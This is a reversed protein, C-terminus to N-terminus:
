NSGAIELSGLWRLISCADCESILYRKNTFMSSDRGKGGRDKFAFIVKEDKDDFHAFSSSVVNM